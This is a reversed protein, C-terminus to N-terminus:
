LRNAKQNWTVCSSPSTCRGPCAHQGHGFGMHERSTTVHQWANTQGPQERKNLFRYPDFIEPREYISPDTYKAAVMVRAGAPLVIGNSLQIPRKVLRNM